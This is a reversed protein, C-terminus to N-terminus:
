LLYWALVLIESYSAIPEYAGVISLNNTFNAVQEELAFEFEDNMYIYM